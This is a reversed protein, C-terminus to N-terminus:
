TIRIDCKDEQHLHERGSMCYPCNNPTKDIGFKEGCVDCSYVRQPPVEDYDIVPMTKNHPDTGLPCEDKHFILSNIYNVQPLTTFKNTYDKRGCVPCSLEERRLDGSPIKFYARCSRAPCERGIMGLPDTKLTYKLPGAMIINKGRNNLLKAPEENITFVRYSPRIFSSHCLNYILM